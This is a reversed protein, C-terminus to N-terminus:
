VSMEPLGCLTRIEQFGESGGPVMLIPMYEIGGLIQIALSILDNMISVLIMGDTDPIAFGIDRTASVDAEFPQDFCVNRNPRVHTRLEVAIAYNALVDHDELLRGPFDKLSAAPGHAIPRREDDKGNLDVHAAAVQRVRVTTALAGGFYM